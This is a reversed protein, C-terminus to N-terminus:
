YLRSEVCSCSNDGRGKLSIHFFFNHFNRSEHNTKNHNYIILLPFRLLSSWLTTVFLFAARVVTALKMWGELLQYIPGAFASRLSQM